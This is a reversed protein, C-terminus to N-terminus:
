TAYTLVVSPRAVEVVASYRDFGVFHRNEALMIFVRKTSFIGAFVEEVM